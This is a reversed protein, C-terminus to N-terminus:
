AENFWQLWHILRSSSVEYDVAYDNDKQHYIHAKKDYNAPCFLHIACDKDRNSWELTIGGFEDTFVWAKPFSNSMIEYTELVLNMVTKFAYDTPQLIGYDDEAELDLLELIRKVTITFNSFNSHSSSDSLMDKSLAM